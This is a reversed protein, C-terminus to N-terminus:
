NDSDEHNNEGDNTGSEQRIQEELERIRTLHIERKAKLRRIYEEDAVKTIGIFRLAREVFPTEEVGPSNRTNSIGSSPQPVQQPMASTSEASDNILPSSDSVSSAQNKSSEVTSRQSSAVFHIRLVSLENVLM